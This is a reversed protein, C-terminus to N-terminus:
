SCHLFQLISSEFWVGLQLARVVIRGLNRFSIEKLRAMTLTVTLRPGLGSKRLRTAFITRHTQRTPRACESMRWSWRCVLILVCIYMHEFRDLDVTHEMRSVQAMVRQLRLSERHWDEDEMKEQLDREKKLRILEENEMLLQKQQGKTYGRFSDKNSVNGNEDTVADQGLLLTCNRDSLSRRFEEEHMQTKLAALQRAVM